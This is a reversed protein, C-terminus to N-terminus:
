VTLCSPEVVNMLYQTRSTILKHYTARTTSHPQASITVIHAHVLSRHVATVPRAKADMVVVPGNALRTLKRRPWDCSRRRKQGESEEPNGQRAWCGARDRVAPLEANAEELEVAVETLYHLNTM